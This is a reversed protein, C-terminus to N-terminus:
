GTVIRMLVRDRRVFHHYAGLIHAGVLAGLATGLAAHTLFLPGSAARNEPFIAPLEFWGFVSAGAGFASNAMWGTLPQMLLLAYLGLHTVSAVLRQLPPVDHPLQAPPKAWRALLRLLVLPILAAGISRHLDYLSNQLPGGWDNAIVIGLPIMFLILIAMMWHLLRASITYAPAAAAASRPPAPAARLPLGAIVASVLESGGGASQPGTM